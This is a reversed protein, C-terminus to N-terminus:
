VRERCSARGIEALVQRLDVLTFPKPLSTSKFKLSESAITGYGSSFIIKLVPMENAVKRALDVGSMGPLSVDTLLVDFEAAALADLAEEANSVTQVHHGLIALQEQTLDRAFEHDEVLLIRLPPKNIM